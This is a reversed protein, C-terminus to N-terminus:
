SGGRFTSRRRAPSCGPSRTPWVAAAGGATLWRSRLAAGVVATLSGGLLVIWGEGLPWHDYRPVFGFTWTLLLAAALPLTLAQLAARWPAHVLEVGALGARTRLGATLLSLSERMLAPVGNAAIAERACDRVVQADARRSRPYARAAVATIADVVRGTV